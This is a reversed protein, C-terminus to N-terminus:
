TTSNHIRIEKSLSYVRSTVWAGFPEDLNLTDGLAKAKLRDDEREIDVYYNGVNPGDSPVTVYDFNKSFIIQIPIGGSLYMALGFPTEGGDLRAKGYIVDQDSKREGVITGALIHRKFFSRFLLGAESHNTFYADIADSGRVETRDATSM